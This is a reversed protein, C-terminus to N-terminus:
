EIYVELLEELFELDTDLFGETLFALGEYLGTQAFRKADATMM